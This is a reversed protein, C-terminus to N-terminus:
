DCIKREEFFRKTVLNDKKKFRESTNAFHQRAMSEARGISCTKKQYHLRLKLM